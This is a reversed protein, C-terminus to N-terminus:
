RSARARGGVIRTPTPVPSRAPPRRQAHRSPGERGERQQRERDEPERMREAEQRV